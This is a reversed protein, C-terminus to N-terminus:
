ANLRLKPSAYVVCSPAQEINGVSRLHKGVLDDTCTGKELPV